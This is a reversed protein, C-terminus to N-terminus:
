SLSNLSSHKFLCFFFHIDVSSTGDVISFSDRVALDVLEISLRRSQPDYVYGAPCVEEEKTTGKQKKSPALLCFFILM